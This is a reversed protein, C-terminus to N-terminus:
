KASPGRELVSRFSKLFTPIHGARVRWAFIVIESKCLYGKFSHSILYSNSKLTKTGKFQKNTIAPERRFHSACKKSILSLFSFNVSILVKKTLFVIIDKVNKILKFNWPYCQLDQMQVSPKFVLKTVMWHM